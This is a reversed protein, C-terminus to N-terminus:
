RAGGDLRGEQLRALVEMGRGPNLATHVHKMNVGLEVLTIAVAPQIGVVVAEAGLLRVMATIRALVRAIFSDVVALGGVDILMGRGHTRVLEQTIQEELHLVTADDLDGQLSVLLNHGLRIIPALEIM